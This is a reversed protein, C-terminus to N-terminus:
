PPDFVRSSARMEWSCRPNSIGGPPDNGIGALIFGRYQSRARNEDPGFHDLIPGIRLWPPAGNGDVTAGYSSWPWDEPRTTLGARVPNLVIYRVLEM